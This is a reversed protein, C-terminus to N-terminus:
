LSNVPASRLLSPIQNGYRTRFSEDDTVKGVPYGPVQGEAVHYTLEQTGYIPQVLLSVMLLSLVGEMDIPLTM